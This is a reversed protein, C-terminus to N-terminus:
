RPSPRVRRMGLAAMLMALVGLAFHGLTPVPTAAAVGSRLEAVADALAPVAQANTIASVPITNRFSGAGAVTVRVTVTCSAGPALTADNNLTFSGGGGTATVTGSPCTTSAAPTSALTMGAPLTDTFGVSSYATAPAPTCTAAPATLTVTLESEGGPMVASPSFAKTVSLGSAQGPLAATVTVYNGCADVTNFYSRYQGGGLAAVEPLSFDGTNPLGDVTVAAGNTFLATPTGWSTGSDSSEIYWLQKGTRAGSPFARLSYYTGLTTGGQDLTRGYNHLYSQNATTSCGFWCLGTGAFADATDFMPVAGPIPLAYRGFGGMTDQALYINQGVIGFPGVHNGGPTSPLPGLASPTLNGITTGLNWLSTNYTYSGFAGNPHWVMLIWDGNGDRSVRLYNAWPESSAGGSVWWNAPATLNGVTTFNVGDTSTAHGIGASLLYADGVYWMHYAGDAFVITNLARNWVPDGVATGDVKVPTTVTPFPANAALAASSGAWALLAAVLATRWRQAHPLPSHRYTM